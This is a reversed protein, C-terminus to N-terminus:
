IHIQSKNFNETYLVFLVFKKHAGIYETKSYDYKNDHIQKADNIFEKTTKRKGM